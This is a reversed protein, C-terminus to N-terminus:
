YGIKIREKYVMAIFNYDDVLNIIKMLEEEFNHAWVDQIHTQKLSNIHIKPKPIIKYNLSKKAQM